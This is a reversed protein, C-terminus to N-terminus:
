RRRRDDDNPWSPPAWPNSIRPAEGPPPPPPSDPRDESPGASPAGGTTPPPAAAGGSPKTLGPSGHGSGNGSGSGNGRVLDTVDSVLGLEAPTQV